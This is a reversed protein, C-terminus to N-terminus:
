VSAAHARRSPTGNRLPPESQLELIGSAWAAYSDALVSCGVTSPPTLKTSWAAPQSSPPSVM